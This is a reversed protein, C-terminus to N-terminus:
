IFNLFKLIDAKQETTLSTGTGAVSTGAVSASPGTGAVSTGTGTSPPLYFYNDILMEGSSDYVFVWEIHSHSAIHSSLRYVKQILYEPQSQPPVQYSEEQEQVFESADITVPFAGIMTKTVPIDKIRVRFIKNNEIQFLGEPTWLRNTYRMEYFYPELKNKLETNGDKILYAYIRM